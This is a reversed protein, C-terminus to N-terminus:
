ELKSPSCIPIAAMAHGITRLIPGMTEHARGESVRELYEYVLILAATIFCYQSTAAACGTPALGVLQSTQHQIKETRNRTSISCVLPVLALQRFRAFALSHNPFTIFASKTSVHKRTQHPSFSNGYNRLLSM